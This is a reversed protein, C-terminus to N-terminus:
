RSRRAIEEDIADRLEGLLSERVRVLDSTSRTNFWERLNKFKRM